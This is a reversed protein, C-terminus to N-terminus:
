LLNILANGPLNVEATSLNRSICQNVHTWDVRPLDRHHGIKSVSFKQVSENLEAM